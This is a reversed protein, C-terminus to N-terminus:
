AQKEYRPFIHNPITNSNYAKSNENYGTRIFFVTIVDLTGTHGVRKTEYLKRIKAVADHSTMGSEKFIPLVGSIIDNKYKNEKSIEIM